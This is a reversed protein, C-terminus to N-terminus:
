FGQCVPSLDTRNEAVCAAISDPTLRWPRLCLSRTKAGCQEKVAPSPTAAVADSGVGDTMLLM